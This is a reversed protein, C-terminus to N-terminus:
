KYLGTEIYHKVIVVLPIQTTVMLEELLLLVFVDKEWIRMKMRHIVKVNANRHTQTLQM